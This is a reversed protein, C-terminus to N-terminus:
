NQPNQERIQKELIKGKLKKNDKEKKLFSIYDPFTVIKRIKGLWVYAALDKQFKIKIYNGSNTENAYWASGIINKYKIGKKTALREKKHSILKNGYIKLQQKVIKEAEKPEPMVKIFNVHLVAAMEPPKEQFEIFYDIKEALDKICFANISFILISIIAVFIEKKM